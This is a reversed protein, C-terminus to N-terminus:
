EELSLHGACNVNNPSTVRMSFGKAGPIIYPGAFPLIYHYLGNFQGVYKSQQVTITTPETTWTKAATSQVTEAASRDRKAPTVSTSNTGPPNAGFTNYCLEVLAPVNTSTAGDFSIGAELIKIRQNTPALAGVVTEATTGTLAVASFPVDCILAAM